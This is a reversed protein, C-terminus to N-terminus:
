GRTLRVGIRDPDLLSGESRDGLLEARAADSPVVLEFSVLGLSGDPPQPAGEGGWVNMGVHHHYGGASTFLAGPYSRTVM